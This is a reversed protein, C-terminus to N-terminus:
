SDSSVQRSKYIASMLYTTLIMYKVQNQTSWNKGWLFQDLILSRSYGQSLHIEDLGNIVVLPRRLLILVILGKNKGLHGFDMSM